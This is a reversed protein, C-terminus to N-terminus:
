LSWITDALTALSQSKRRLSLCLKSATTDAHHLGGQDCVRQSVERYGSAATRGLFSQPELVAEVRSYGAEDVLGQVWVSESPNGSSQLCM